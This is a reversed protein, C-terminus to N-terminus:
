PERDNNGKWERCEEGNAKIDAFYYTQGASKIWIVNEIPISRYGTDGKKKPDPRTWVVTLNYLSRDYASKGGKLRSTVGRRCNMRRFEKQDKRKIFAVTFFGYGAERLVQRVAEQKEHSLPLDYPHQPRTEMEPLELQWAKTYEQGM